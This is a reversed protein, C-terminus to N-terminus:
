QGQLSTTIVENQSDKQDALYSGCLSDFDTTGSYQEFKLTKLQTSTTVNITLLLLILPSSKTGTFNM